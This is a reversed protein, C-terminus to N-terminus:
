FVDFAADYHVLGAALAVCGPTFELCMFTGDPVPWKCRLGRAAASQFSFRPYYAPHGLVVVLGVHRQQCRALGHTVLMAGLGRRQRDPRVALPALGVGLPAPSPTDGRVPSFLIHGVVDDGETAVFSFVGPQHRLTDVLRAEDPGGFAATIVARVADADAPQEDRVTVRM